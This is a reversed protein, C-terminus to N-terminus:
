LCQAFLNELGSGKGMKVFCKKYHSVVNGKQKFSQDCLICGFQRIDSHVAQHQKLM